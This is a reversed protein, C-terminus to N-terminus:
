QPQATAAQQSAETNHTADTSPRVAAAKFIAVIALMVVAAGFSVLLIKIAMQFGDLDCFKSRLDRQEDQIRDLRAELADCKARFRVCDSLATKIYAIDSEIRTDM